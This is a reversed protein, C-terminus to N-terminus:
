VLFWAHEETLLTTSSAQTNRWASIAVLLCARAVVIPLGLFAAGLAGLYNVLVM